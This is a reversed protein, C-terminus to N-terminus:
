ITEDENFVTQGGLIKTEVMDSDSDLDDFDDGSADEEEYDNSINLETLVRAFDKEDSLDDFIAELYKQPYKKLLTNIYDQLRGETLLEKKTMIEKWNKIYHLRCFNLTTRINDCGKELCEDSKPDVFYELSAIQSHLESWDFGDVVLGQFTPEETEDFVMEKSKKDSEEKVSKKANLLALEKEKKLELKLEKKTKKVPVEKKTEKKPLVKVIKKVIKKALKKAPKKAVIKKKVVTKKAVVKKVPKKATVKKIVKKAPKSVAKKVSKKPPAKKKAPLVKKKATKKM